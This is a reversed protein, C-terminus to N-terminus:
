HPCCVLVSLFLCSCVLVSLLSRTPSQALSPVTSTHVYGRVDVWADMWGRMWGGVRARVRVCGVWGRVCEVWGRVCGVWACVRGVKGDEASGGPVGAVGDAGSYGNSEGGSNIARPSPWWGYQERLNDVVPRGSSDVANKYGGDAGGPGSAAAGNDNAATYGAPWWDERSQAVGYFRRQRSFPLLSSIRTHSSLTSAHTPPPRSFSDIQAFSHVCRCHPLPPTCTLSHSHSHTYTHTLTHPSHSHTHTLSHTLSHTHLTHTPSHTHLTHTHTSLTLSHTHTSLTLSHTHLTHTLTHPSHSHTMLPGYMQPISIGGNGDSRKNTQKNTRKNTTKSNPFQLFHQLSTPSPLFHKSTPAQM